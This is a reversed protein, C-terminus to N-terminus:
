LAVGSPYHQEYAAESATTLCNDSCYRRDARDDPDTVPAGTIPRECRTCTVPAPLIAIAFGPQDIHRTLEAATMFPGDLPNTTM